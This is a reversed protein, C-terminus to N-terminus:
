REEDIEADTGATDIAQDAAAGTVPVDDPGPLRRRREGRKPAPDAAQSADHDQAQGENEMEAIQDDTTGHPQTAPNVPDSHLNNMIPEM